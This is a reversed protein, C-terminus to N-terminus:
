GLFRLQHQLKASMNMVAGASNDAQWRAFAAPGAWREFVLNQVAFHLAIGALLDFAAGAMLAVRWGRPLSTWRAALFVLGLLIVPQLCIHALGWTDRAGHVAVGLVVVAAIAGLWAARPASRGAPWARLAAAGLGLWAVSGFALPFNLQCAQFWWDRLHGWPSSQAILSTDLSRLFHPVLTDRLNLAIRGFQGGATSDAALVATNALFTGRAGYTALAWGFWTSLLAAGMALAAATALWWSVASRRRLLRVFWAVLLVIGCPGASYHALIGAALCASFLLAPKLPAEEGARLFFWLSCLVFFATPLKTWAFTANQSFLPNVLFLVAALPVARGSGLRRALLAAPAFALSAFLTSFLQYHAFDARTLALFAANVVNALPPRATVAAHGLFVTDASGRDLYFRAREWHEFWDGTWGGGSYTAVLALLGLCWASVLLQGLGLERAAPARWTLRFERRRAAIGGLAILPLLVHAAAPLHALFVVWGFLYVGVLSLAVTAVLKEAPELGRRALLPWALGAIVLAFLLAGALLSLWPALM